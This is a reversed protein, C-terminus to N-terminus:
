CLATPRCLLLDSDPLKAGAVLACTQCSVAELLMARKFSAPTLVAPLVGCNLAVTGGCLTVSKTIGFDLVVGVGVGCGVGTGVGLGVGVGCGVGVGTGVGTGVGCGAPGVNVEFAVAERLGTCSPNVVDM